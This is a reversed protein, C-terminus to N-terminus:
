EMVIFPSGEHEGFAYITLVNPHSILAMARAELMFRQRFDEPRSSARIPKIAVKRELRSDLACFVVGMSGGGLESEVRYTDAIWDGPGPLAASGTREHAFPRPETVDIESSPEAFHTPALGTPDAAPAVIIERLPRPALEELGSAPVHEWGSDPPLPKPPQM